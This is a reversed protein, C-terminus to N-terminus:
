AAANPGGRRDRRGRRRTLMRLQEGSARISERGEGCPSRGPTLRTSRSGERGQVRGRFGLPRM